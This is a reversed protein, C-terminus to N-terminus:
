GARGTAREVFEVAYFGEAVIREKIVGDEDEAMAFAALELEAGSNGVALTRVAMDFKPPQADSVYCHWRQARIEPTQALHTKDQSELQQNCSDVLYKAITTKAFVDLVGCDSLGREDDPRWRAVFPQFYSFDARCLPIRPRHAVM